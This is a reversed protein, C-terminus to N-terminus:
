NNFTSRKLKKQTKVKCTSVGHCNLSEVVEKGAQNVKIYIIM